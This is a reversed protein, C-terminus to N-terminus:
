ERMYDAKCSLNVGKSTEAIGLGRPEFSQLDNHIQYPNQNAHGHGRSDVAYVDDDFISLFCLHLGHM